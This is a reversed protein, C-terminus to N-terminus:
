KAGVSQGSLRDQKLQRNEELLLDKEQLPFKQNLQHLITFHLISIIEQKMDDLIYKLDNDQDKQLKLQKIEAELKRQQRQQEIIQQQTEEAKASLMKHQHLYDKYEKELTEFHNKALVHKAKKDKLERKLEEYDKWEQTLGSMTGSKYDVITAYLEVNARQEELDRIEANTELLKRKLEEAVTELARIEAAPTTAQQASRPSSTQRSRPTEYVTKPRQERLKAALKANEAVLSDLQEKLAFIRAHNPLVDAASVKSHKLNEQQETLSLLRTRLREFLSHQEKQKEKLKHNEERVKLYRDEWEKDM